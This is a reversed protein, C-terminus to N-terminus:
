KPLNKLICKNTYGKEILEVVKGGKGLVLSLSGMYHTTKTFKECKERLRKILLNFELEVHKSRPEDSQKYVHLVARGLALNVVVLCDFEDEFDMIGEGEDCTLEELIATSLNAFELEAEVVKMQENGEGEEEEAEEPKSEVRNVALKGFFREYQEETVNNSLLM